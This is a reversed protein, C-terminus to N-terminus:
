SPVGGRLEEYWVAVALCGLCWSRLFGGGLFGGFLMVSALRIVTLM